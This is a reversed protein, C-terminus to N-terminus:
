DLLEKRLDRLKSVFSADLLRDHYRIMFGGLMKEDVVSQLNITEGTADALM